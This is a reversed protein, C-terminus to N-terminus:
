PKKPLNGDINNVIWDFIEQNILTFFTPRRSGCISAGGSVVAGLEWVGERKTMLPGGSDGQCVAAGDEAGAACVQSQLVTTNWQSSCDSRSTIDVQVQQLTDSGQGGNNTTGWGAVFWLRGTDLEGPVAPLCVPLIYDSISVARDLTVIGVDYAWTEPNYLPHIAKKSVGRRVHKEACEKKRLCEEDSSFPCGTPCVCSSQGDMCDLTTSLDTEGLRVEILNVDRDQVCHAATLVNKLSILTGGCDVTVGERASELLAMWPWDGPVANKGEAIRVGYESTRVGCVPNEPNGTLVELFAAKSNVGSKIDGNIDCYPEVSVEGWPCCVMPWSLFFGCTQKRLIDQIESDSDASNLLDCYLKSFTIPVCVTNALSCPTRVHDQDLHINVFQQGNHTFTWNFGNVLFHSLLFPLVALKGVLVASM